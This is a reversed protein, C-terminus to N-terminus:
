ADGRHKEQTGQSSHLKDAASEGCGHLAVLVGVVQRNFQVAGAKIEAQEENECSAHEEGAVEEVSAL